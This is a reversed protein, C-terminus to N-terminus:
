PGAAVQRTFTRPRTSCGIKDAFRRLTSLEPVYELMRTLDGRESETLNERRKVILHRHAFVFHAKEKVTPRRRKAAAKAKKSKRGRKKQRGAKGRRSMATRLRRVADLILKNINKIIHFVCLQHEAEPWLDDLVAPYLNSDDTVMVRPILGWTKLNNLFRLMHDQDNSAVLAFAVPLDSLPDTALLLTCRGLHLEDVCLTGSFHWSREVISPCTWSEPTTASCKTSSCRPCTWFYIV